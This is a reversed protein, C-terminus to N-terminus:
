KGQLVEVARQLQTDSTKIKEIFLENIKTATEKNVVGTDQLNHAVQLKSISARTLEDFTGTLHVEYGIAQVIKQINLVDDSQQGMEYTKATDITSLKTFEPLSAEVQPTVGKQHVWEGNSTLWKSYTIKMGTDSTLPIITQATGKGFTTEGVLQARKTDSLASAFIESASASGKNVLVVVPEDVKFTGYQNDSVFKQVGNEKDQMQFMVQGNELFMNVVQQAADVLGGPNSRVDVVFSRAGQERAKTVADKLEDYTNKAFSSIRIVAVDPNTEHMSFSVSHLPITDRVLTVDFESTGRRIKLTVETGKKGRVKGSVQSTTQTATDEGNVGIILDGSMLGAKSAPTNDYPSVIRIYEGHQEIEVGIGEFSSDTAQNLAEWDNVNLYSTYTDGAGAIFGSIAGDILKEEDIEGMYLRDLMTYSNSLGTVLREPLPTSATLVNTSIHSHLAIGGFTLVGGVAFAAILLSILQILSLKVKKKESM